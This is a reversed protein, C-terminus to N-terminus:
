QSLKDAVANEKMSVLANILSDITAGRKSDVDDVRSLWKSLCEMLSRSADRPHNYEIVDMTTKRLGLRLGLEFFRTESFDCEKLLDIVHILDNVDLICM